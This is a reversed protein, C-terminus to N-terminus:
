PGSGPLLYSIIGNALGQGKDILGIYANVIRDTAVFEDGAKKLDKWLEGVKSTAETVEDKALDDAKDNVDSFGA